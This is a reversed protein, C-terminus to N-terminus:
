LAILLIFSSCGSICFIRSRKGSSLARWCCSIISIYLRTPALGTAPQRGITRWIGTNKESYLTSNTVISIRWAGNKPQIWSRDAGSGVVTKLRNPRIGKVGGCKRIIPAHGSIM